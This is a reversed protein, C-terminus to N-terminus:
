NRTREGKKLPRRPGRVPLGRHILVTIRRKRDPLIKMFKRYCIKVQRSCFHFFVEVFFVFLAFGLFAGLIYFAGELTELSLVQANASDTRGADDVNFPEVNRFHQYIGSQIAYAMQITYRATLPSGRVGYVMVPNNMFPLLLFMSNLNRKFKKRLTYGDQDLNGLMFMTGENVLEDFLPDPRSTLNFQGPTLIKNWMEHDSHNLYSHHYVWIIAMLGQEAAELPSQIQREMKTKFLNGLLFSQYFWAIHLSYVQFLFVFGNIATSKTVAVPSAILAAILNMWNWSLSETWAFLGVIVGTIGLVIFITIWMDLPFGSYINTATNKPKARPLMWVVSRHSHSPLAAAHEMFVESAVMASFAFDIEGNEINYMASGSYPYYYFFFSYPLLQVTLNMSQAIIKMLELERGVFQSTENDYHVDPEAPFAQYIVPCGEFNEPVKNPYLDETWKSNVCNDLFEIKATTWCNEKKYPFWTYATISSFSPEVIVTDPLRYKTWLGLSTNVNETVIIVRGYIGTLRVDELNQAIILLDVSVNRQPIHLDESIFYTWESTKAIPTIDVETIIDVATSSFYTIMINLICPWTEDPIWNGPSRPLMTRPESNVGPKTLEICFFVPM